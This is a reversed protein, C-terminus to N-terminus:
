ITDETIPMFRELTDLINNFLGRTQSFSYKNESLLNIIQKQLESSNEKPEDVLVNEQFILIFEEKFHKNLRWRYSEFECVKRSM